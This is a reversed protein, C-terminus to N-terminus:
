TYKAIMIKFDINDKKLKEIEECNKRHEERTSFKTESTKIFDVMIIKIEDLKDSMNKYNAQITAIEGEKKCVYNEM